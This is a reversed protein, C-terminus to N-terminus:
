QYNGGGSRKKGFLDNALASAADEDAKAQDAASRRTGGGAGRVGEVHSRGRLRRNVELSTVPGLGPIIQDRTMPEDYAAEEAPVQMSARLSRDMREIVPVVKAADYGQNDILDEMLTFHPSLHQIKPDTFFAEKQIARKQSQQVAAGILRQTDAAVFQRVGQVHTRQYAREFAMRQQDETAHPGLAQVARIGESKCHDFLEEYAQSEAQQAQEQIRRNVEAQQERSGRQIADEGISLLQEVEEPKLGKYREPIKLVPEAPPAQPPEVVRLEPKEPVTEGSLPLSQQEQAVQSQSEPTIIQEANPDM